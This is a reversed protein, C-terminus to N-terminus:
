EKHSPLILTMCWGTFMRKDKFLSNRLLKVTFMRNQSYGYIETELLFTAWYVFVLHQTSRTVYPKVNPMLTSSVTAFLLSHKTKKILAEESNKNKKM